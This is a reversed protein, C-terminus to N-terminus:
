DSTSHARSPNHRADVFIVTNICKSLLQYGNQRLYLVIPSSVIEDLTEWRIEVLIIQPRYREWDNSQLVEFDLGEVDVDLLNIKKDSPLWRDFVESLPLVDLKRKRLLKLHPTSLLATDAATSDLTNFASDNFEYFDSNKSQNGIGICINIDHPRFRDFLNITESSPDINMGRWGRKHLLYTNSYRYPHHAGVDVYFGSTQDFWRALLIDEGEQSWTLKGRRFGFQFHWRRYVDLLWTPLRKELCSSLFSRSM